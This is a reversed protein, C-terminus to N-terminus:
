SSVTENQGLVPDCPRRNAPGFQSQAIRKRWAIKLHFKIHLLKKSEAFRAIQYERSPISWKSILLQIFM